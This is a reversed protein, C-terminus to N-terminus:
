ALSEIIDWIDANMRGIGFYKVAASRANSGLRCALERNNKVIEIANQLSNKDNPPVLLCNEKDRFVEKDWLGEINTLIVPKGCAMAQLTVSYGSPQTTDHLPVVIASANQYAERLELDTLSPNHLSGVRASPALELKNRKSIRASTIIEMPTDGAADLLLQYNRWRDSGVSLLSFYHQRSNEGPLWFDTDVGFKFLRTDIQRLDYNIIASHRDAEGFFFAMSLGEIARKGFHDLYKRSIMRNDPKLLDSLGHFGGAIKYKNNRKANELGLSLSFWDIFSIIMDNPSLVDLYQAALTRNFSVKCLRNRVYEILQNSRSWIKGEINGRSDLMGVPIGCDQLYFYGYYFEKPSNGAVVQDFRQVRSRVPFAFYVKRNTKSNMSEFNGIM